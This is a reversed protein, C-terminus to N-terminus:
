KMAKRMRKYRRGRALYGAAFSLAFVIAIALWLPWRVTVWLITMNSEHGNQFMFVVVLVVFLLAIWNTAALWSRIGSRGNDDSM